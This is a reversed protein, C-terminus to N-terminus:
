ASRIASLARDRDRSMPATVTPQVGAELVMVEAGERLRRVLQAAEGRAADFRTPSVDRAKMSASPDLGVVVKRPGGGMGTAVPQALALTLALLALLQLILLPDRQLRQFFTSAERDRQVAEWFMLSSVRRERRRVKLFYLLVLPLSLAFAALALPSLFSMRAHAGQAPRRHLGGRHHRHHGPPLRDGARPLLGGRAGPLCPLPPPLRAPSGWRGHPRPSRGDRQRDPSSGWGADPEDGGSRDLARSPRRVPARAARARRARLREPRSLGVGGGGP